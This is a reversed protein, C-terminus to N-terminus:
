NLYFGYTCLFVMSVQLVKISQLYLMQFENRSLNFLNFEEYEIANEVYFRLREFNSIVVYKCEPNHEKYLFAQSEIKNLDTTDTGKLEIVVKVKNDFIVAGDAKRNDNGKSINKQETLLNYNPEPNITYGLVSVFLDRLFGEQYQEEKSNRINEQKEPNAFISRFLDYKEDIITKNLKASYKEVIRKQFM